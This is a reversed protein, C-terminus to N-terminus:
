DVGMIAKLAEPYAPIAGPSSAVFAGLQNGAEAAKAVNAERLYSTLFGASFADGAGVTDVVEVAHGSCHVPKGGEYVTCGAEGKTICVIREPNDETIRSVFAPESLAEGFLHHSLTEVETDNLKVLNAYSIGKRIIAEPMFDLRINVDYFVHKFQGQELLTDLSKQVVPSRQAITGFCLVDYGYANIAEVTGEHIDIFDFAVGEHLAFEPVGEANLTVEAIGTPRESDMQLYTTQVGVQDMLVSAKKGRLDTGLRTIVASECQLKAMHAALNLPAGGLHEEGEIVDWLVEGFTLAKITM